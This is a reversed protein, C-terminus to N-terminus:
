RCSASAAAGAEGGAGEEVGGEGGGEGGGAEESPDATDYFFNNSRSKIKQPYLM